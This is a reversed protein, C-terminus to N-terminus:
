RGGRERRPGRPPCDDADFHDVTDAAIRFLDALADGGARSWARCLRTVAEGNRRSRRRVIRNDRLDDSSM